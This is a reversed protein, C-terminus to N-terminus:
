PLLKALTSAVHVLRSAERGHLVANPLAALFSAADNRFPPLEVFGNGIEGLTHADSGAGLPLGREAAWSRARDNLSPRHIRANFGEVIDVLDAVEALIRGGGGKGGAFPHPVYVLGGQDRIRECTDRAPTGKPIWERLFLGIIDVGERTKVEEGPIVQDPHREALDLAAEIENHDTICVRSLGRELARAVVADPQSRCDFSLRTHVHMDVRVRASGPGVRGVGQAAGSGERAAPGDLEGDDARAAPRIVEDWVRGAEVELEALSGANDIVVDARARKEAAPMQAAMLGQIEDSSLGRDRALRGVRVPEPADVVVVLDFERALGVEFLLPIDHVVVTAGMAQLRAEEEARLRGVEPHIVAELRERASPDAFVMRRVATRDLGDETVAADGFLRRVKELGPSGPAVAERALVDADIVPAGRRAWVRAVASKGSAINGTLGIRFM